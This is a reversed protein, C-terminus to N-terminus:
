TSPATRCASRRGCKPRSRSPGTSRRRGSSCRRSARPSGSRTRSSSRSSARSTACSTRAAACGSWRAPGTARDLGLPGYDMAVRLQAEGTAEFLDVQIGKVVSIVERPQRHLLLFSDGDEHVFVCEARRKHLAHRFADRIEAERAGDKMFASFHFIDARVACLPEDRAGALWGRGSGIENVRDLNRAYLPNTEAILRALIPHVLYHSSEPLGDSHEFPREGPLLFKQM